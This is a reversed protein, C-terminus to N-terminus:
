RPAPYLIFMEENLYGYNGMCAVFEEGLRTECKSRAEAYGGPPNLSPDYSLGGVETCAGLLVIILLIIAAQMVVPRREAAAWPKSLM